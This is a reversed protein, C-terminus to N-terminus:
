KIYKFHLNKTTKREGRCVRSIADKKTKYYQEAEKASRFIKNDEICLVKKCKAFDKNPTYKGSLSEKPNYDVLGIRAGTKLLSCLKTMSINLINAMKQINIKGKYKNFVDCAMTILNENILQKELKVWDVKDLELINNLKNIVENKIKEFDSIECPVRIIKYGNSIALKDKEKDIKQCEEYSKYKSGKHFGGDMEIIINEVVFDYKREKSWNFTKERQFDINLQKLLCYMFRNPYSVGDGCKPCPYQKGSTLDVIRFIRQEDCIPCKTLVKKGSGFTMNKADEENVFYMLYQPYITAFDNKGKVLKRGNCVGCGSVGRILSNAEKCEGITDCKTCKYKIPSHANKYESIIELNPYYKHVKEIYQEQTLQNYTM